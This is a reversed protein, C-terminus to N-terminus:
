QTKDLHNYNPLDKWVYRAKRVEKETVAGEKLMGKVKDPYNEIFEKSMEGQRHSQIQSKMNKERDKKIYEPVFEPYPTKKEVPSKRLAEECKVCYSTGWETAVVKHKSCEKLSATAISDGRLIDKHPEIGYKNLFEQKTL